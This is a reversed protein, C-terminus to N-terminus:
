RRDEAHVRPALDASGRTAGRAADLLRDVEAQAESRIQDVRAAHEAELERRAQERADVIAALRARVRHEVKSRREDISALERELDLRTAGLQELLADVQRRDFVTPSSGDLTELDSGTSTVLASSVLGGKGPGSGRTFAGLMPSPRKPDPSGM